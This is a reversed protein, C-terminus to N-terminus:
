IISRARCSAMRTIEVIGTGKQEGGDEGGGREREREERERERERTREEEPSDDRVEDRAAIWKDERDAYVRLYPRFTPFPFYARARARAHPHMLGEPRELYTAAGDDVRQGLL